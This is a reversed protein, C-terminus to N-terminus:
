SGTIMDAISKAQKVRDAMGIGDRINGALILGPYKEELGKICELREGTSIEYQPIAKEYRFIKLLDPAGGAHLTLRIEGLAIDTIEDDSRFLLERNRTGGLFVSLLAGGEPARGEFIASPFLIGLIQRKEASPVLGGFADLPVGNWKEYGAAVQVVGAYELRLLPALDAPAMFTLIEPLCYSGATSVLSPCELDHEQGGSDTFSVSFGNGTQGTKLGTVGCRIRESGIEKELAAILSGLGGRASFVEKTAKKEDESKPERSKQVAGKIFSGYNQELAYLKPLAYRTVLRSPDGAYIGSIFPDVAYDLFSRGLRRKVLDAVSEDPDTGPKRFPEGLIRFKDKLTFLPTTVASILGSPLAQWRGNKLIYRKKAGNNGTALTCHGRLEEFLLATEKNSLVGTNPGSEYIFGQEEHTQIVGGPGAAKELVLPRRGNKKLYYALTLGTLGAGIIIIDTTESKMM